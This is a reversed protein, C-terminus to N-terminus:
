RVHLQGSAATTTGASNSATLSCRVSRRKRAKGLTLRPKVHRIEVGNVRWAYSFRLANRWSGRICTLTKGLRLIRPRSTNFPLASPSATRWIIGNAWVRAYLAVSTLWINSLGTTTVMASPLPITFTQLSPLFLGNLRSPTAEWVIASANSTYPPVTPINVMNGVALPRLM